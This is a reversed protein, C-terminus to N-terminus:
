IKAVKWITLETIQVCLSLIEWITSRSFHHQVWSSGEGAWPLSVSFFSCGVVVPIVLCRVCILAEAQEWVVILCSRQLWIVCFYDWVQLVGARPNLRTLHKWQWRWLWRCVLCLIASCGHKALGRVAGCMGTWSSCIIFVDEISFVAVGSVRLLGGPYVGVAVIALLHGPVVLDIIFLIPSGWVVVTLPPWVLHLILTGLFITAPVPM